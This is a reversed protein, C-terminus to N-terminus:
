SPTSSLESRSKEWVSNMQSYVYSQLEQRNEMSFPATDIPPLVTLKIQSSWSNFNAFWRDKPLTEYAGEIIVPVVPVSASMAFIFPGAKFASLTPGFFRGGEPSLAFREGALFRTKAEEYVKFTEERRGRAIPLTGTRKMALGFMPISFLESKAGFRLFPFSGALAFIDFFSSHNFLFLCGSKPINELNQVVVKVNFLWCTGKAWTGIVFDDISKKNFLINVIFGILSLVFTWILFFISALVSRIAFIPFLLLKL